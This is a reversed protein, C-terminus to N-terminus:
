GELELKLQLDLGGKYFYLINKTNLRFWIPSVVDGEGRSALMRPSPIM